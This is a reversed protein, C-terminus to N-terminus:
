GLMAPRPLLLGVPADASLEFASNDLHTVNGDYGNVFAEPSALIGFGFEETKYHMPVVCRPSASRVIELAEATDITFFGGIPILMLDAGRLRGMIEEGPVSGTDGMHIVRLGGFSFLHIKNMGRKEGGHHDHPVEITEVSFGAPAGNGSLTVNGVAGHDGHGHSCYVADASQRINGLGDVSGDEYPDIVLSYDGYDIRFCAHGLWQIRVSKM